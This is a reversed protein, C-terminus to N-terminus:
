LTASCFASASDVGAVYSAATRKELLSDCIVSLLIFLIDHDLHFAICILILHSALM